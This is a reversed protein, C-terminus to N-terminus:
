NKLLTELAPGLRNVQTMASIEGFLLGEYEKEGMSRAFLDMNALMPGKKGRDLDPSEGLSASHPNVWIGSNSDGTGILHVHGGWMQEGDLDDVASLILDHESLHDPLGIQSPNTM